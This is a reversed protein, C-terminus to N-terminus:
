SLSITNKLLCRLSNHTSSTSDNPSGTNRRGTLMMFSPLHTLSYLLVSPLSVYMSYMLGQTSLYM